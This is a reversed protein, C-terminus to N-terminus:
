QVYAFIILVEKYELCQKLFMQIFRCWTRPELTWIILIGKQRASFGYSVIFIAMNWSFCRFHLTCKITSYVHKWLTMNLYCSNWESSYNHLKWKGRVRFIKYVVWLDYQCIGHEILISWKVANVNWTLIGANRYFTNWSKSFHPFISM